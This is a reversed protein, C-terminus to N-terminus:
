LNVRGEFCDIVKGELYVQEFGSNKKKFYIKLIGGGRTKVSVPSDLGKLTAAILAAATSGTGCALTEAEVGREYTRIEVSGDKGISIFDVNTGKPSFYKHRRLARGLRNVEVQAVRDSVQVAHPVGTDILHLLHKRGDVEVSVNLKLSRPTIMKAKVIDGRVQAEIRGAMTEISHTTGAIRAQAAFKALCRVGNGCMEAESGDPNFIRMRFDASKSRELLLLGDGGVSYKRECLTKAARVPDALAKARDDIIIFDNGAAAKKSFSFPKLTRYM